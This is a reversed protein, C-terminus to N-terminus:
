PLPATHTRPQTPTDPSGPYLPLTHTRGAAPSPAATASSHPGRGRAGLASPQCSPGSCLITHRLTHPTDLSNVATPVTPLWALFSQTHTSGMPGLPLCPTGQLETPCTLSSCRRQVETHCSLLTCSHAWTANPLIPHPHQAWRHGPDWGSNLATAPGTTPLASARGDAQRPYLPLSTCLTGPPLQPM